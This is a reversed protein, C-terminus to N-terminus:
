SILEMVKDYSPDVIVDPLVKGSGRPLRFKTTYVDHPATRLCYEVGEGRVLQTQLEDGVEVSIEEMKPRIFTQAIYDVAPYLWNGFAPQVAAGVTPLLIDGPQRDTHDGREQGIIVVNREFGLLARTIERSKLSVEGYTERSAMGWSKQVPIEELGLIEKLLLDQFATIHDLVITEFDKSASKIIEVLVSSDNIVYAEIKDRMEPTDLTKLEGPRKGGSCILALTPGPFTGWFHTKGSGSKGYM